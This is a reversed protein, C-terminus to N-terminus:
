EYVQGSQLDSSSNLDICLADLSTLHIHPDSILNILYQAPDATKSLKDVPLYALFIMTIWLNDV